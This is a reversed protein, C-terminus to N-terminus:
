DLWWSNGWLKVREVRHNCSPLFSHSYHTTDHSAKLWGVGCPMRTHLDDILSSRKDCNQTMLNPRCCSISSSQVFWGNFLWGDTEIMSLRCFGSYIDLETGFFIASHTKNIWNFISQDILYEKVSFLHTDCLFLSTRDQFFAKLAM